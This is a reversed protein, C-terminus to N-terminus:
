HSLEAKQGNRHLYDVSAIRRVYRHDPSLRSGKRNWSLGVARARVSTNCQCVISPIDYQVGKHTRRVDCIYPLGRKHEDANQDAVLDCVVPSRLRAQDRIM